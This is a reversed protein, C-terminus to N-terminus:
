KPRVYIVWRKKRGIMEEAGQIVCAKGIWGKSDEGYDSILLKRSTNNLNVIREGIEKIEIRISFKDRGFKNEEASQFVGEDMFTGKLTDKDKFDDESLWTASVPVKVMENGGIWEIQYVKGTSMLMHEVKLKPYEITEIIYYQVM